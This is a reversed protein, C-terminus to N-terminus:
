SPVRMADEVASRLHLDSPVPVVCAAGAVLRFEWYTMAKAGYALCCDDLYAAVWVVVSVVGLICPHLDAAFMVVALRASSEVSGVYKGHAASGSWRSFSYHSTRLPVPESDGCTM